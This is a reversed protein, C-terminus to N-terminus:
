SNMDSVTKRGLSEKVIKVNHRASVEAKPISLCLFGERWTAEVDKAQFAVPAIWNFEVRGDALEFLEFGRSVPNTVWWRATPTVPVRTRCIIRNGSVEVDVEGMNLSPLFIDWFIHSDSERLRMANIESGHFGFGHGAYGLGPTLGVQPRYLAAVTTTRLLETVYHLQARLDNLQYQIQNWEAYPAIPSTYPTLGLGPVYGPATVNTVGQGHLTQYPGYNPVTFGHAHGNQFFPSGYTTRPDTEYM